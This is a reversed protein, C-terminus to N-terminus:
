EAAAPRASARRAPPRPLAPAPGPRRPSRQAPGGLAMLPAPGADGPRPLVAAGGGASLLRSEGAEPDGIWGMM